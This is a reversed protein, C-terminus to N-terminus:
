VTERPAPQPSAPASCNRPLPLFLDRILWKLNSNRVLILLVQEAHAGSFRDRMLLFCKHLRVNVALPVLLCALHPLKSLLFMCFSSLSGLCWMHLLM